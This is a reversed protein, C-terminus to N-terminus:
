GTSFPAYRFPLLSCLESMSSNAPQTFPMYPYLSLVSGMGCRGFYHQEDCLWLFFEAGDQAGVNFNMGLLIQHARSDHFAPSRSTM